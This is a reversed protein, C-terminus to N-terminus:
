AILRLDHVRYGQARPCWGTEPRGTIRQLAAWSSEEL